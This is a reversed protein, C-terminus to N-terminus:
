SLAARPAAPGLCENTSSAIRWWCSAGECRRRGVPDGWSLRVSNALYQKSQHAGGASRWDSGAKLTVDGFRGEKRELCCRNCRGETPQCVSDLLGVAPRRFISTGPPRSVGALLAKGLLCPGRERICLAPLSQGTKRNGERQDPSRGERGGRIEDLARAM